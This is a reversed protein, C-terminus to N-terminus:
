GLLEGLPALEFEAVAEAAIRGHSDLSAPRQFRSLARLAPGALMGV